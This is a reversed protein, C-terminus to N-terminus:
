LYLKECSKDVIGLNQMKVYLCLTRYGTCAEYLLMKVDCQLDSAGSNKTVTYNNPHVAELSTVTYNNLHVAELSTFSYLM